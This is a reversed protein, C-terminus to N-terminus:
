LQILEGHPSIDPDLPSLRDDEMETRCHKNRIGYMRCDAYLDVFSRHRM